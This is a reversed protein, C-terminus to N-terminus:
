AVHGEVTRGYSHHPRSSSKIFEPSGRRFAPCCLRSCRRAVEQCLSEMDDSVSLSGFIRAASSKEAKKGSQREALYGSVPPPNGKSSSFVSFSTPFPQANPLDWPNSEEELGPILLADDREPVGSKDRVEKSDKKEEAGLLNELHALTANEGLLTLSSRRKDGEEKGETMNKESLCSNELSEPMFETPTM